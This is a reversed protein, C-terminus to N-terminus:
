INDSPRLPRKTWSKVKISLVAHSDLASKQSDHSDLASKEIYHPFQQSHVVSAMWM